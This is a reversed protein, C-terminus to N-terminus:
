SFFLRDVLVVMQHKYNWIGHCDIVLIM